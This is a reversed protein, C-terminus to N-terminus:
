DLALDAILAATRAPTLDEVKGQPDDTKGEEGDDAEGASRLVDEILDRAQTLAAANKASLTRGAKAAKPAADEGDGGYDCGDREAAAVLSETSVDLVGAFAELRDRPPCNIEGAVIANTTGDSIGAADAMSQIVDARSTDDDTQADIAASLAAGLAAGKARQDEGDDDQDEGDDRLAEVLDAKLGDSLTAVLAKVGVLETAPNAGKLTPGVEILDVEGLENAGDEGAHEEVVDYAFSFERIRRQDLLDFLRKAFPQDLDMQGRRVLLGDETEEIDAPDVFGVHADLNDWQHSFIIPVPDGSAKWRDLSKAFAGPLVRDGVLDVNGFVSVLATFEGAKGGDVTKFGKIPYSARKTQRM